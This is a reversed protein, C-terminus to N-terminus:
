ATNTFTHPDRVFRDSAWRATSQSSTEPKGKQRDIAVGVSLNCLLFSFVGFLFNITLALGGQVLTAGGHAQTFRSKPHYLRRTLGIQQAGAGLCPVSTWPHTIRRQSQNGSNKSWPQKEERKLEQKHARAPSKQTFTNLKRRSVTPTQPSFKIICSM